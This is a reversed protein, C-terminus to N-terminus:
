GERPALAHASLNVLLALVFLVIGLATAREFEGKSSDLAIATTMTRTVGRIHGGLMM